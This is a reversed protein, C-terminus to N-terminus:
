LGFILCYSTCEVVEQIGALELLAMEIASVREELSPMKQKPEPEPAPVVSIINGDEDMEYDAPLSTLKDYIEKTIEIQEGTKDPGYGKCTIKGDTIEVFYVM